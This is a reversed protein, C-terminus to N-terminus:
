HCCERTIGIVAWMGWQALTQANSSSWRLHARLKVPNTIEWGGSAIKDSVIQSQHSQQSRLLCSPLVM